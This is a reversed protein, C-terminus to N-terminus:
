ASEEMKVRIQHVPLLKVILELIVLQVLALIRHDMLPALAAMRVPHRLAHLSRVTPVVTDAQVHALILQDM